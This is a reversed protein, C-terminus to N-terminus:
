RKPDQDALAAVGVIEIGRQSAEQIWDAIAQVSEDFASAVGIATGNRRAVRELEDLKRLIAERSLTADLQLDAFAHPMELAGAITGSLSQASSGDDLFLLGRGGIDRLVPELADASSLFKGGMFNMVGTYNTIKAMARHLLDLNKKADFGARLTDPGPDNDLDDFPELPLQLLIEHGNRRAEQMWRALSNGTSAFALTVEGPLTRIARQTGTQSLGLGGVVIAIRTGRTGSWPRAYQELPRLGDPGIVPLKGFATVEILDDNPFAASRPEQGIRAADLIVPGGGDRSAPSFKRVISGDATRTEEIRAGSRGKERRIGAQAPTDTGAAPAAADLAAQAASGTAATQSAASEPEKFPGQPALATWLSLGLVFAAVVGGAIRAPTLAALRARGAAAKRNQGLPANLDTGM